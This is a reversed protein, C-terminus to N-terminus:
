ETKGEGGGARGEAAGRGPCGSTVWAVFQQREAPALRRYAEEARELNSAARIREQRLLEASAEKWALGQARGKASRLRMM